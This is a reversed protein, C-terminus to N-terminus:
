AIFIHFANLSFTHQKCEVFSAISIIISREQKYNNFFTDIYLLKAPYFNINITGHFKLKM